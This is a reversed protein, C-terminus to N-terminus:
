EHLELFDVGEGRERTFHLPYSMRGELLFALVYVQLLNYLIKNESRTIIFRCTFILYLTLINIM